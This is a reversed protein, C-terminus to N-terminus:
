DKMITEYVKQLDQYLKKGARKILDLNIYNRKEAVTNANKALEIYNTSDEIVDKLLKNTKELDKFITTDKIVLDKGFNFGIDASAKLLVEFDKDFNIINNVRNSIVFITTADTGLGILTVITKLTDKQQKTDPTVPIVVKDFLNNIGYEQLKQLFKVMNSAGVDIIVEDNIALEEYFETIQDATFKKYQKFYEQFESNGANHTEIEILVPDNDMNIAIVERAIITKGVNGSNSIIAIKM